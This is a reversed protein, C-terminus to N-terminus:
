RTLLVPRDIVTRSDRARTLSMDHSNPGDLRPVQEIIRSGTFPWPFADTPRGLHTPVPIPLEVLPALHPLVAIERELLPLAM